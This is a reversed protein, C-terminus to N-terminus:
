MGKIGRGATTPRRSGQGRGVRIRQKKSGPNDRLANLSVNIKANAQVTSDTTTTSYHM